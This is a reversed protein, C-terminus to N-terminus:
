LGQKAYTEVFYLDREKIFAGLESTPKREEMKKLAVEVTVWEHRLGDAVEDHTLEPAGTDELLHARYCYSIQHLDNRWEETTALCSEDVRVNCGTEEMAERKGALHHDEDAEIGGGPLKYYNDRQAHIIIIENKDNSILLRVALREKYPIDTKTGIVKPEPMETAQKDM